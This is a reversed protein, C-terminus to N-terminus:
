SLDTCWPKYPSVGTAYHPTDRYAMLMDQIAMSREPGTKEQLHAIQETKSLVKIFDRYKSMREPTDLHLDIIDFDVKKRLTRFRKEALLLGMTQCYGERSAM